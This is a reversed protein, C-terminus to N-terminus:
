IQSVTRKLSAQKQLEDLQVGEAKGHTKITLRAGGNKGKRLKEEEKFFTKLHLKKKSKAGNSASHTEAENESSGATNRDDEADKDNQNEDSATLSCVFM